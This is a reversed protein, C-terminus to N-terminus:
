RLPLLIHDGILEVAFKLLVRNRKRCLTSTTMYLEEALRLLTKTRHWHLERIIQQEVLPLHNYVEQIANISLRLHARAKFSPENSDMLRLAAGHTPDSPGSGRPMGANDTSPTGKIVSEELSRLLAKKEAYNRLLEAVFRLYTREVRYEGVKVTAGYRPATRLQDVEM